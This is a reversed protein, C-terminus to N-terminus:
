AIQVWSTGNFGLWHVGNFYIQGVSATATTQTPLQLASSILSNAGFNATGGSIVLQKASNAYVQFENNATTTGGIGLLISGTYTGGHSTAGIVITNAGSCTAICGLSMGYNGGVTAGEGVATAWYGQAYANAGVAVGDSNAGSAAGVAVAASQSGKANYGVAVVTTYTSASASGGIVVNNSATGFAFYSATLGSDALSTSTTLSVLHGTTGSITPITALTTSLGAVNSQGITNTGLKLAGGVTLAGTSATGSIVLSGASLSNTGASVNGTFTCGTISAVNSALAYSGADVGGLQLSNSVTINTSGTSTAAAALINAVSSGQLTFANISVSATASM